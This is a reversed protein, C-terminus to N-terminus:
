KLQDKYYKDAFALLNFLCGHIASEMGERSPLKRQELWFDLAHRLFSKACIAYHDEGFHAQWNDSGRKNGDSQVTHRLMYEAYKQLVLPPLCGEIDIKGQDTDRVGGSEFHRM